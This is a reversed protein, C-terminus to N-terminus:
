IATLDFHWKCDITELQRSISEWLAPDSVEPGSFGRQPAQGLILPSQLKLMLSDFHLCRQHQDAVLCLWLAVRM